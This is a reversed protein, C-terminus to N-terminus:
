GRKETVTARRESKCHLREAKAKRSFFAFRLTEPEHLHSTARRNSRAAILTGQMRLRM